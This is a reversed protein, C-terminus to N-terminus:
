SRIDIKPFPELVRIASEPMRPRTILFLESWNVRRSESEGVVVAEVEM